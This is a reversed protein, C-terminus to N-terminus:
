EDVSGVDISMEAAGRIPHVFVTRGSHVVVQLGGYTFMVSVEPTTGPPVITELAELDIANSLPPLEDISTELSEDITEAVLVAMEREHRPTEM